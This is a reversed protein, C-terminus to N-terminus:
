HISKKRAVIINKKNKKPREIPTESVDIVVTEIQYDEQILRRKGPLRLESAQILIDEVKKVIRYATSENIGWTAGLHFYTRYERLYELTMLVQDEVKLKPPRGTIKRSCYVKKVIEVMQNFTEYHVGSLRKFEESTLKKVQKYTMITEIEDKEGLELV